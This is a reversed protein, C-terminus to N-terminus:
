LYGEKCYSLAPETMNISRECLPLTNSQRDFERPEIGLRFVRGSVCTISHSHKRIWGYCIHYPINHTAAVTPTSSISGHEIANTVTYLQKFYSTYLPKRREWALLM